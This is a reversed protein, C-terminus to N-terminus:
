HRLGVVTTLVVRHYGDVPGPTHNELQPRNTKAAHDRSTVYRQARQSFATGPARTYAAM